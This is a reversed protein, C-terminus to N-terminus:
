AKIFALLDPNVVEPHTAFPAHSLGPYTKLTGNSLLKIAKQASNAIPVIQDDEGHMVLVPPKSLAETALREPTILRGSIAVVGALAESRRPAIHLAMMAGQSFGVLATDAPTLGAAALQQDVFANLDDGADMAVMCSMTLDVASLEGRRLADRAAAITLENANM